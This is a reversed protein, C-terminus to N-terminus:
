ILFYQKRSIIEEFVIELYRVLRIGEDIDERVSIYIQRQEFDGVRWLDCRWKASSQDLQIVKQEKPVYDDESTGKGGGASFGGFPLLTIFM